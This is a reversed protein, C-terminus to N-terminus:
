YIPAQQHHHHSLDARLLLPALALACALGSPGGGIIAVNLDEVGGASNHTSQFLVSKTRLANVISATTTHIQFASAVSRFLVIATALTALRRITTM